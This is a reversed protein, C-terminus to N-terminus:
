NADALVTWLHGDPDAFTGTYGWPQPGPEVVVEAGAARARGVLEDVEAATTAPLSVVCESQGPQAVEHGGIVWGFGGTPVLMVRLGANLTFQLPEPIGDEAPEGVAELGLGESYFRYSTPRDAIPLAVVVPAYQM